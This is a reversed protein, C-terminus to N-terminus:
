TIGSALKTVERAISLPDNSTAAKKLIAVLNDHRENAIDLAVQLQKVEKSKRMLEVVFFVFFLVPVGVFLVVLAFGM